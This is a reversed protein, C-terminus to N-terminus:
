FNHSMRKPPQLLDAEVFSLREVTLCSIKKVFYVSANLSFILLQQQRLKPKSRYSFSIYLLFPPSFNDYKFLDLTITLSSSNARSPMVPLFLAERKTPAVSYFYFQM